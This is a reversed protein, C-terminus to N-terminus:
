SNKVQKPTIISLTEEFVDDEEETESFDGGLFKIATQRGAEVSSGMRRLLLTKIFGASRMIEALAECFEEAKDYAASLYGPLHIADIEKEGHLKVGVKKLYPEGSEPDIAEELFKRTRRVITRIFPNHNQFFDNM